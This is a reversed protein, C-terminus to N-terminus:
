LVSCHFLINFVVLITILVYCLDCEPSMASVGYSVRRPSSHPKYINHTCDPAMIHAIYCSIVYMVVIGTAFYLDTNSGVFSMRHPARIPSSHPTKKLIKSFMFWKIIAGCQIKSFFTIIDDYLIKWFIPHTIILVLLICDLALMICDLTVLYKMCCQMSQLMICILTNFWLNCGMGEIPHMKHSYEHFKVANYYCWVAHEVNWAMNKHWQVVSDSDTFCYAFSKLFTWKLLKITGWSVRGVPVCWLSVSSNQM